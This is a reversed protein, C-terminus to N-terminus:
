RGIALYFVEGSPNTITEATTTYSYSNLTLTNAMDYSGGRIETVTHPQTAKRIVWSCTDSGLNIGSFSQTQLNQGYATNTESVLQESEVSITGSNSVKFKDIYIQCNTTWRYRPPNDSIYRNTGTARTRWSISLSLMGSGSQPTTILDAFTLTSNNADDRGSYKYTDHTENVTITGSGGGTIYFTLVPRIRYKFSAGTSQVECSLTFRQQGLRGRAYYTPVKKISVLVQPQEQWYGPLETWSGIPASGAKHKKLPTTPVTSRVGDIKNYIDLRGADFVVMDGNTLDAPDKFVAYAM